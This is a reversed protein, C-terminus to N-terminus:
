DWHRVNICWFKNKWWIDADDTKRGQGSKDTNYKIKLLIECTDMVKVKSVFKNYMLKKVVDDDVLNRLKSLNNPVTKLKDIDIKYVETKLYSSGSKTALNFRDVGTAEKM